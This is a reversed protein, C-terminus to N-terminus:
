SNRAEPSAAPPFGRAFCYAFAAQWIPFLIFVSGTGLLAGTLGGVAVTAIALRPQRFFPFLFWIAMVLLGAGLVGAPIGALMFSCWESECVKRAYDYAVDAAFYHAALWSVESAVLFAVAKAATALGLRYLYFGVVIGFVVGIVNEERGPILGSIADPWYEVSACILGSILGLVTM